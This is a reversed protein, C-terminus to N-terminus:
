PERRPDPSGLTQTTGSRTPSATRELTRHTDAIAAAIAVLTPDPAHLDHSSLHRELRHNALQLDRTAARLETERRTICRYPM